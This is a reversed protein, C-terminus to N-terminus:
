FRYGVSLVPYLLLNPTQSLDRPSNSLKLWNNSISFGLIYYVSHKNYIEPQEIYETPSKIYGGKVRIQYAISFSNFLVLDDKINTSNIDLPLYMIHRNLGMIVGNENYDSQISLGVSFLSPLGANFSLALNKYIKIDKSFQLANPSKETGLGLSVSWTKKKIDPYTIVLM